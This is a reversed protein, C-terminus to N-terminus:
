SCFLGFCIMCIEFSLKNLASMKTQYTVLQYWFLKYDMYHCYFQVGAKCWTCCDSQYQHSKRHSLCSSYFKSLISHWRQARQASVELHLISVWFFLNFIHSSQFLSQNMLLRVSLTFFCCLGYSFLLLMFVQCLILIWFTNWARVSWFSFSFGTPFHVFSNLLYKVSTSVQFHNYLVTCM